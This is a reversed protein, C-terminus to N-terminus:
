ILYVYHQTPVIATRCKKRRSTLIRPWFELQAFLFRASSNHNQAFNLTEAAFFGEFLCIALPGAVGLQLQLIFVSECAVWLSLFLFEAGEGALVM